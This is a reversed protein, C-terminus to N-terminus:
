YQVFIVRGIPNLIQISQCSCQAYYMYMDYMANLIYYTCTFICTGTQTHM